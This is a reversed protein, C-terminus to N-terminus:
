EGPFPIRSRLPESATEKGRYRRRRRQNSKQDIRQGFEKGKLTKLRRIRYVPDLEPRQEKERKELRKKGLRKRDIQMYM